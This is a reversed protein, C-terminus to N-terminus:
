FQVPAQTAITEMEVYMAANAATSIMTTPIFQKGMAFWHPHKPYHILCAHDPIVNWIKRATTAAGMATPPIM